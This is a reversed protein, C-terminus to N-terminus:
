VCNPGLCPWASKSNHNYYTSNSSKHACEHVKPTRYFGSFEKVLLTVLLKELLVRNWTTSLYRSNDTQGYVVCKLYGWVFFDPPKLDSLRPGRKGMCCIAFKENTMACVDDCFSTTCWRASFDWNRKRGASLFCLEKLMLLGTNGMITVGAYFFHRRIIFYGVGCKSKLFTISMNSLEIHIELGGGVAM